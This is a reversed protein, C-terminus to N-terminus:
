CPVRLGRASKGNENFYNPSYLGDHRQDEPFAEGTLVEMQHLLSAVPDNPLEPESICSFLPRNM